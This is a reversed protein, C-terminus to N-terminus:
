SRYADSKCFYNCTCRWHLICDIFELTCSRQAPGCSWWTIRPCRIRCSCSREGDASRLRQLITTYGSVFGSEQLLRAMKEDDREKPERQLSLEWFYDSTKELMLSEELFARVPEVVLLNYPQSQYRKIEAIIAAAKQRKSFNILNGEKVLNDKMGDQVFTLTTLYVGLFLRHTPRIDFLCVRLFM